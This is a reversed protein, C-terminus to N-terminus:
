KNQSLLINSLIPCRRSRAGQIGAKKWSRKVVIVLASQVIGGGMWWMECRLVKDIIWHRNDTSLVLFFLVRRGVSEWIHQKLIVDILFSLFLISRYIYDWGFEWWPIIVVVTFFILEHVAGFYHCMFSRIRPIVACLHILNLFSLLWCKFLLKPQISLYRTARVPKLPDTM